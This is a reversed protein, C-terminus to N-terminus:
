QVGYQFLEALEEVAGEGVVVKMPEDGWLFHTAGDTVCPGVRMDDEVGVEEGELLEEGLIWGFLVRVAGGPKVVEGKCPRLVSRGVQSSGM